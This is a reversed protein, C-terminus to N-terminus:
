AGVALLPCQYPLLHSFIHQNQLSSLNHFERGCRACDRNIHISRSGSWYYELIDLLPHVTDEAGLNTGNLQFQVGVVGINDTATANINVTGSLASGNTPSTLFISPPTVDQILSATFTPMCSLPETMTVHGDSCDADGSWGDFKSAGDPTATLTVSTGSAFNAVCSPACTIGAPSSTVTGGGTGTRTVTLTPPVDVPGVHVNDFVSGINGWSYLAVSGTSLASDVVPGGFLSVGDVRVELTNGNAVVEVQYSQGMVYPVADQRLLTVAGNVVKVLRRYLRQADWSFRYYNTPNQYRVMIGMADDDTSRMQVAVKYNSWGLGNTYWAFTGKKPLVTGDTNGDYINSTQQLVGGVVTWASPADWTGENVVQWGTFNGDNFDVTLTPPVDVPGVHVNDFVSGINGWSYLAVSGTSLASDVVPGGFLSVGDVRVELTNGNAVVEVQYSQGMVYPVADQRLLTVAGNVVKVLRRYLRQADWSFRYYNTPNQYRVMIGLADDDTSRMQVAVKYNSWGLGNTYWAFTGKKPLVTGDTNGDYINSTQQLVGGVVTWASPADWTGENVVQWGSFNGDNFDDNLGDTLLSTGSSDSINKSVEQSPLSENGNMDYATIAFYNTLGSQLNSITYTTVKGVDTSLGYVGATKGQYVRYGALDSESNAAWQLTASNSTASQAANPLLFLCCWVVFGFLTKQICPVSFINPM